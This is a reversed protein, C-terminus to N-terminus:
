RLVIEKWNQMQINSHHFTSDYRSILVNHQSYDAFKSERERNEESLQWCVQINREGDTFDIEFNEKV